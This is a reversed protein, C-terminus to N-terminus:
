VNEHGPAIRFRRGAHGLQEARLRADGLDQGAGLPGTVGEIM